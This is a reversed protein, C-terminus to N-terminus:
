GHYESRYGALLREVLRAKYRATPESSCQEMSLHPPYVIGDVAAWSPVKRRAVQRGRIQDLAWPLDIGATAHAQLALLRVDDDAHQQVFQRTADNITM